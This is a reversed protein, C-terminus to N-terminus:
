RSEWLFCVKKGSLTSGVESPLSLVIEVGNYLYIIERLCFETKMHIKHTRNDCFCFFFFFFCLFFFLFVFLCFLLSVFSLEYGSKRFCSYPNGGKAYNSARITSKIQIKGFESHKCIQIACSFKFLIDYVFM